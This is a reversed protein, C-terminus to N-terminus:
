DFWYPAILFLSINAVGHAMSIGWISGTKRVVLTDTIGSMLQIIEHQAQSWSKSASAGGYSIVYRTQADQLDWFVRTFLKKDFLIDPNQSM